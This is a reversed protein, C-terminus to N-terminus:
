RLMNLCELAKRPDKLKLLRKRPEGGTADTDWVFGREEGLYVMWRSMESGVRSVLLAPTKPDLHPGFWYNGKDDPPPLTLRKM